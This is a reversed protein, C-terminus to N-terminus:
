STKQLWKTKTEMNFEFKNDKSEKDIIVILNGTKGAYQTGRLFRWTTDGTYLIASMIVHNFRRQFWIKLEDINPCVYPAFHGQNEAEFEFSEEIGFKMSFICIKKTANYLKYISDYLHTLRIHSLMESSYVIDYEDLFDQKRIDFEQIKMQPYIDHAAAISNKSLEFGHYDVDIKKLYYYLSGAACGVDAISKIERHRLFYMLEDFVIRNNLYGTNAFRRYDTTFHDWYVEEGM